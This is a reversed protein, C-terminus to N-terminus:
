LIEREVRIVEVLRHGRVWEVVYQLCQDVSQRDHGATAVGFAARQWKVSPDVEAIAINFRERLQDKLSKLVSRKDKLSQAEPLWLEVELMGVFM